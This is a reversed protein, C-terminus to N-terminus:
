SAHDGSTVVGRSRHVVSPAATSARVVLEVQLRAQVSKRRQAARGLALEAAKRGIEYAPQRVTTLPPEMEAAFDDDSFGVVSVDRPVRLGLERAARYVEKAYLDSAAYIATPRDPGSLLQRAPELGGTTDGTPAEITVCEADPYERLAEEFARRRAV